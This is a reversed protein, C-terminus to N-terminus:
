YGQWNVPQPLTGQDPSKELPLLYVKENKQVLGLERRATAEIYSPSHKLAEIEERMLLERDKLHVLSRALSIERKKLEQTALLGYDGMFVIMLMLCAFVALVGLSMLTQWQEREKQQNKNLPEKVHPPSFIGRVYLIQDRNKLKMLYPDRLTQRQLMKKLIPYQM